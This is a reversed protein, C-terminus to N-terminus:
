PIVEPTVEIVTPIKPFITFKTESKDSNNIREIPSNKTSTVIAIEVKKTKAM